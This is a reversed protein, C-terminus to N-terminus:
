LLNDLELLVYFTIKVTTNTGADHITVKFYGQTSTNEQLTKSFGVSATATNSMVIGSTVGVTLPNGNQDTEEWLFSVTGTQGSYSATLFGSITKAGHQGLPITKIVELNEPTIKATFSGTITGVSVTIDGTTTTTLNFTFNGFEVPAYVTVNGANNVATYGYFMTNRNIATVILGATTTADTTWNITGTLNATGSGDSHLPATVVITGNTSANILFAALAAKGPTGPNNQDLLIAGMAGSTSNVNITPTIHVGSPTKVIVFGNVANGDKDVNATASWGTLSNVQGALDIALQALSEPQGTLISLVIGNRTAAVLVGNYYIFNTVTNTFSAIVFAKGLYNCAFVVSQMVLTPFPAPLQQYTVGTPLSANPSAASGFTMLGSDTDVLGFTNTPFATADKAFSMRQEVEGGANIHANVLQSLAGPVTTLIDRRGDLGYKFSNLSIYKESM